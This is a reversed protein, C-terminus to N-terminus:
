NRGNDYDEQKTPQKQALRENTVRCDDDWEARIESADKLSFNGGLEQLRELIRLTLDAVEESICVDAMALSYKLHKPTIEKITEDTEEGKCPQLEQSVLEYQNKGEESNHFRDQENVGLQQEGNFLQKLQNELEETTM